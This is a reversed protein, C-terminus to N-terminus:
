FIGIGASDAMPIMALNMFDLADAKLLEELKM